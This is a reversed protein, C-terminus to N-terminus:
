HHRSEVLEVIAKKLDEPAVSDLPIDEVNFFTIESSEDSLKITYETPLKAKFISNVIKYNVGKYLYNGTYSGFFEFETIDLNIEEKIERALAQTSSEDPNVFGGPIGWMGKGPDITRKEFLVQGKENFLIVGASPKPSV